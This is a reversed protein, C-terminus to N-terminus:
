SKSEYGVEEILKEINLKIGEFLEVDKNWKKVIWDKDKEAEMVRKVSTFIWIVKKVGANLLDETKAYIYDAYSGFMEPDAKTDAEIVILPSKKSFTDELPFDERKFIGIDITRWTNESTFVGHENTTVLYKKRDLVSFLFGVILAIIFAQINSSGMVEEPTKEGKLVKKYDRYYVPKGNVVEYTLLKLLEEKNKVEKM